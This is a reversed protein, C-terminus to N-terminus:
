FIKEDDAEGRIEELVRMPDATDTWESGKIARVRQITQSLPSDDLIEFDDAKFEVLQWQGEDDRQWRGTGQLRIVKRYVCKADMIKIALEQSMSIGTVHTTGDVLQMHKTADRGVVSVPVGELSGRERIIGYDVVRPRECGPFRVIVAGAPEDDSFATLTGVANDDYLLKDLSKYAKVLDPPPSGAHWSRLRAAVKPIAEKDIAAQLLTSGQKLTSFHVSTTEGLIGAMDSMYESLRSMPITAPSYANFKLEYTLRETLNTIKGTSPTRRM